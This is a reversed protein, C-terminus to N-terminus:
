KLWSKVANANDSDLSSILDKLDKMFNMVEDTSIDKLEQAHINLLSSYVETCVEDLSEKKLKDLNNQQSNVARIHDLLHLKILNLACKNFEKDRVVVQSSTGRLTIVNAQHLYLSGDFSFTFKRYDKCSLKILSEGSTSLKRIKFELKFQSLNWSKFFLNSLTILKRDFENEM